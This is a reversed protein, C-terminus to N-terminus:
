PFKTIKFSLDIEFLFFKLRKTQILFQDGSIKELDDHRTPDKSYIREIGRQCTTSTKTTDFVFTSSNKELDDYRTANKTHITVNYERKVLKQLETM